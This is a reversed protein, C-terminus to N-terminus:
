GLAALYLAHVMVQISSFREFECVLSCQLGKLDKILVDYQFEDSDLMEQYIRETLVPKIVQAVSRSVWNGVFDEDFEGKYSDDICAFSPSIGVSMIESEDSNNNENYNNHHSITIRLYPYVIQQPRESYKQLIISQCQYIANHTVLNPMDLPIIKDASYELSVETILGNVVALRRSNLPCFSIWQSVEHLEMMHMDSELAISEIDRNQYPFRFLDNHSRVKLESDFDVLARYQERVHQIDEYILIQSQSSTKVLRFDGFQDVQASTILLIDGVKLHSLAQQQSCAFLKMFLRVKQGNNSRCKQEIGVWKYSLWGGNLYNKDRARKYIGCRIFTDSYYFVKGILDFLDNSNSYMDLSQHLDIVNLMLSPFRDRYQHPNWGVFHGPNLVKLSKVKVENGHMTYRDVSIIAGVTVMDFYKVAFKGWIVCQQKQQSSDYLDIMFKFPYDDDFRNTKIYNFASNKSMVRGILPQTRLVADSLMLHDQRIPPHKTQWDIEQQLLQEQTSPIWRDDSMPDIYCNRVFNYQPNRRPPNADYILPIDVDDLPAPYNPDTACGELMTPEDGDETLEINALCVGRQFVGIEAWSHLGPHLPLLMTQKKQVNLLEVDFGCPRDPVDGLNNYRLKYRKCSLVVYAIEHVM